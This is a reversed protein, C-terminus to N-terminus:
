PEGERTRADDALARAELYTDRDVPGDDYLAAELIPRLAEAPGDLARCVERPTSSPGLSAGAADRLEDLIEGLARRYPLCRGRVRASRSRARPHDATVAVEVPGEKPVTFTRALTWAEGVAARVRRDPGDTVALRVEPADELDAPEVGVRVPVEEGPAVVPAEDFPTELRVRLRPLPAAAENVADDAGADPGPEAGGGAAGGDPVGRSALGAAAQRAPGALAAARRRLDASGAAALTAGVLVLLTGYALGESGPPPYSALGSRALLRAQVGAAFAVVALAGARRAGEALLAWTM